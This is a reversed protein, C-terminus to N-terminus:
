QSKRSDPLGQLISGNVPPSFFTKKALDWSFKQRRNWPMLSLFRAMPCYGFLVMASAGIFPVWYLFRLPPAFAILLYALYAFRVQLAFTKLSRDQIGFHIIQVICLVAALIFGKEWGFIGAGLLPISVAWYWWSVSRFHIMWM